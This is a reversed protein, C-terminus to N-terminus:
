WTALVVDTDAGLRAARGMPPRARPLSASVDDEILGHRVIGAALHAATGALSVEIKGAQGGAMLDMVASAALLGTAPDAIADACFVPLGDGRDVVL